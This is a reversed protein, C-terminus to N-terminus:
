KIIVEAVNATGSISRKMSVIRGTVDDMYDYEQTVKDGVKLDGALIKESIERRASYYNYAAEALADANTRNVLTFDKLEVVNEKDGALVLPNRKTIVTQTKDYKKGTLVCGSNANIVAQNVSQSVITGNTISLSHLPEPFTVTIGNGTGSDAAQYATYATTGAVYSYATLRLETLKDRFTTTQGTFTNEANLTGAVTDPLKYLKVKDSYSTDVVAGLAFAIQNLAERCSCQPIYGTLTATTLEDAIAYEVKLPSLMEGILAAANKGSCIGGDFPSDDLISIYDESEIDYTRDSNREYHTIFTTQVLTDDLYTFVSQKEQFIFDVDSQKKLTFNVTNVSITESVPEVEQLLSFNELEDRGFNRISGYLIDTLYLRNSPMNMKTFSIVLKNYNEVKNACFYNPSDPTFDKDSLLTDGRYWKINVATAYRNSTEDFTLTIGQSTYQGTATLTLVLPTEFTGDTDSSLSNSVLAYPATSEPITLTGDLLASYIECPNAYIPTPTQSQLRSPDSKSAQGTASPAFNEKAGVAIDTYSVRLKM